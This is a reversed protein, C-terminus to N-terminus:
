RTTNRSGSLMWSSIYAGPYGLRGRTGLVILLAVTGFAVLPGNENTGAAPFLASVMLQSWNIAAHLLIAIFVSAHTHNFVWTIIVSLSVASMVFVVGQATM